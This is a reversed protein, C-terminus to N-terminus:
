ARCCIRPEDMLTARDITGTHRSPIMDRLQKKIPGFVPDSMKVYLDPHQFIHGQVHIDLHIDPTMMSPMLFGFMLASAEDGDNYALSKTRAIISNVYCQNVGFVIMFEPSIIQHTKVLFRYMERIMLTTQAYKPATVSIEKCIPWYQNQYHIAAFGYNPRNHWDNASDLFMRVANVYTHYIAFVWNNYDPSAIVDHVSIEGRRVRQVQTRLHAWKAASTTDSSDGVLELCKEAYYKAQRFNLPSYKEEPFTALHRGASPPVPKPIGNDFRSVMDQKLQALRSARIHGVPKKSNPIYPAAIHHATAESGTARRIILQIANHYITTAISSAIGPAAGLRIALLATLSANATLRTRQHQKLASIETVQARSVAHAIVLSTNTLPRQIYRISYDKREHQIIRHRTPVAPIAPPEPRRQHEEACSEYFQAHQELEEFKERQLQRHQAHLSLPTKIPWVEDIDFTVIILGHEPLEGSALQQQRDQRRQHRHKARKNSWVHTFGEQEACWANGCEDEFDYDKNWPFLDSDSVDERPSCPIHEDDPQYSMPYSKTLNKYDTKRSLYYVHIGEGRENVYTVSTRSRRKFCRCEHVSNYRKCCTKVFTNRASSTFAEPDFNTNIESLDRGDPTRYVVLRKPHPPPLEFRMKELKQRAKAFCTLEPAPIPPAPALLAPANHMTMLQQTIRLQNLFTAVSKSATTHHLATVAIHYPLTTINQEYVKEFDRILNELYTSTSANTLNAIDQFTRFGAHRYTYNDEGSCAPSRRVNEPTPFARAAIDKAASRPSKVFSRSFM